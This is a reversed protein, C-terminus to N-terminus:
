IDNPDKLKKGFFDIAVLTAIIIALLNAGDRIEELTLGFYYCAVYEGAIAVYVAVCAACAITEFGGKM